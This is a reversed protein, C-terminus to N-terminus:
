AKSWLGFRLSFKSEEVNFEGLTEITLYVQGQKMREIM